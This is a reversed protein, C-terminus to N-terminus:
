ISSVVRRFSDAAVARSVHDRAVVVPKGGVWVDRVAGPTMTLCIDHLLSAADAGVLTPHDLDLAVIDAEKGVAFSGVPLGLARAGNEAMLPWLVDSTRHANAASALVNRAEAQLRAHYEVCRAEEWLDISAQSDSGLAIPVNRGVLDSARLFGDGLNRETTPCACITPRHAALLDLEADNVHTGHVLTTSEGLMEFEALVEVPSKGYEAVSEEVERRQECAHLHLPVRWERAADRMAVLTERGVARISHPAVAITVGRADAYRSRLDDIRSLLDDDSTDIFRAQEPSAPREFGGRRYGVRLLCIRIGVDTAAAIVQHALENADRYPSGDAQHHVYHFEGVTTIGSLLMEVFAWRSIAYIEEPGLKAMVAYMRERWTWFNEDPRAPDIHETRGRIARQFAHSHANVLGPVLAVEGLHEVNSGLSVPGVAAVRGDSGVSVAHDTRFAGDVLVYRAALTKM